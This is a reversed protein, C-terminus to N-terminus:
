VGLGWGKAVTKQTVWFDYGGFLRITFKYTVAMEVNGSEDVNWATMTNMESIGYAKTYNELNGGPIHKTLLAQGLLNMVSNQAWTMTQGVGVKLFYTIAELPSEALLQLAASCDQLGTGTAQITDTLNEVRQSLADPDLKSVDGASVEGLAQKAGSLQDAISKINGITTNFPEALMDLQGEANKAEGTIKNVYDELTMAYIYYYSSMERTTEYMGHQVTEYVVFYRVLVAFALMVLLVIPFVLSTELIVSGKENKM